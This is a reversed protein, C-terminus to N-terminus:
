GEGFEGAARLKYRKMRIALPSRNIRESLEKDSRQWNMLTRIDASSWPKRRGANFGAKYGANYFEKQEPTM